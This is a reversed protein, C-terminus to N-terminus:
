AQIALRFKAVNAAANAKGAASNYHDKHYNSLGVADTPGPLAPPARRYDVRCMACAYGLNTVLQEYRDQQTMLTQVAASLDTQFALFNRWIDDHTAREIEWLSLAPGGGLQSLYTGDSEALVTGTVLNIAAPQDLKLRACIPRVILAKVQGLDLGSM